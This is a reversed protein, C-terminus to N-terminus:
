DDSMIGIGGFRNITMGNQKMIGMDDKIGLSATHAGILELVTTADITIPEKTSFCEFKKPCFECLKDPHHTISKGNFKDIYCM